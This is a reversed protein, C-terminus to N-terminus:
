MEFHIELQSPTIHSKIASLRACKLAAIAQAAKLLYHLIIDQSSGTTPNSASIQFLPGGSSPLYEPM